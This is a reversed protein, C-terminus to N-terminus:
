AVNTKKFSNTFLKRENPLPLFSLLAKRVPYVSAEPVAMKNGAEEKEPQKKESVDACTQRHSLIIFFHDQISRM